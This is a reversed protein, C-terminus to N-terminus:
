RLWDGTIQDSTYPCTEPLTDVAAHAGHNRMAEAASKRAIQFLQALKEELIQRLRAARLTM